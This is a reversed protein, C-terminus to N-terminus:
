LDTPPPIQEQGDYFQTCPLGSAIPALWREEQHLVSSCGYSIQFPSNMRHIPKERLLLGVGKTESSVFPLGKVVQAGLGSRAQYCPGM